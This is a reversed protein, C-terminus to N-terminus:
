ILWDDFYDRKYWNWNNTLFERAKVIEQRLEKSINSKDVEINKTQYSISYGRSIVKWYLVQWPTFEKWEETDSVSYHTYENDFSLLYQLSIIKRGIEIDACDIIQLLDDNEGYGTRRTTYQNWKPKFVSEWINGGKYTLFYFLEDNDEERKLAKKIEQRSPIFGKSLLQEITIEQPLNIHCSEINELDFHKIGVLIDDKFLDQLVDTTCETNLNLPNHYIDISTDPFDCQDRPMILSTLHPSSYALDIFWCHIKESDYNKM